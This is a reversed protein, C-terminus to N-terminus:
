QSRATTEGLAAPAHPFSAFLASVSRRLMGQNVRTPDIEARSSGHWVRAGNTGDLADIVLARDVEEYDFHPEGMESQDGEPPTAEEVTFARRGSGFRIILDGTGSSPTYGREALAAAILPQVRSRVEPSWASVAYGKPSGEAAGFSFTRYRDFAAAPNTATRVSMPQVCGPAGVLVTGVFSVCLLLAAAQRHHVIVM